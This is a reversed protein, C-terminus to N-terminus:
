FKHRIGVSFQDIEGAGAADFSIQNFGAYVSTRASVGYKAALTWADYDDNNGVGNIDSEDGQGYAGYLTIGAIEFSGGLHWIDKGTAGATGFFDMTSILGEDVEYQGYIAFSGFDYSGGVKYAYDDSGADSTIYDIYAFLGANNYHLGLSYANDDNVPAGNVATNDADFSYNAMVMFGAFSPSAYHVADTMRGQGDDGKGAHLGSQLGGTRGQLASRYMPDIKAGTAKYATSAAGFKLTGFGGKLGVYQDRGGLSGSNAGSGTPIPQTSGTGTSSGTPDVEFALKFIAELGNGLDESGSLAIESQNSNMNIDDGLGDIDVADLSLDVQGSLTVNGAFATGSAMLGGLAIALISKQM